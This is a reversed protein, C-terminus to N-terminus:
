QTRGPFDDETLQSYTSPNFGDGHFFLLVLVEVPQIKYRYKTYKDQIESRVKDLEDLFIASGEDVDNLKKHGANAKWIIRVGGFM